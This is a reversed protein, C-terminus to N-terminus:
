DFSTYFYIFNILLFVFIFLADWLIINVNYVECSVFKKEISYIRKIQLTKQLGEFGDM